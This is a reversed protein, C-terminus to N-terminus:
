ARMRSRKEISRLFYVGRVYVEEHNRTADRRESAADCEKYLRIGPRAVAEEAARSLGAVIEERNPGLLGEATQM